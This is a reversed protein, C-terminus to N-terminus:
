IHEPCPWSTSDKRLFCTVRPEWSCRSGELSPSSPLWDGSGGGRSQGSVVGPEVRVIWPLCLRRRFGFGDHFPSGLSPKWARRYSPQWARSLTDAGPVPGRAGRPCEPALGSHFYFSFGIRFNVPLWLLGWLTVAMKLFLFVAPPM